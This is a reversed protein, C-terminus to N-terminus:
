EDNVQRLMRMYQESPDGEIEVTDSSEELDGTDFLYEVYELQLDLADEWEDNEVKEMVAREALMSTVAKARTANHAAEFQRILDLDESIQPQSVGYREGLESQSQEISRPHGADEILSYLEGRREQANYETPPKDFPALGALEAYDARSWEDDDSDAM